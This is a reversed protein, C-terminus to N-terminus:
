NVIATPQSVVHRTDVSGSLICWIELFWKCGDAPPLRSSSDLRCPPYVIEQELVPSGRVVMRLGPSCPRTPTAYSAEAGQNSEYSCVYTPPLDPWRYNGEFRIRTQGSCLRTRSPFSFWTFSNWALVVPYRAGQGRAPAFLSLTITNLEIGLFVLKTSPGEVKEHAAPVSIYVLLQLTLDRHATALALSPGTIGLFDHLYNMVADLHCTDQLIWEISDAFSNFTFPASHLGFPLVRDYYFMGHWEIGLRPWDSPRVPCWRFANRIDVKALFSGPGKRMIVSIAMDITAYTPSFQDRSIGDNVSVGTPSSLNHILRLKGNHKPVVGLGSIHMVRFPPSSFLGASEGAACKSTLYDSVFASKKFASLHHPSHVMACPAASVPLGIDFVFVCAMLVTVLFHSIQIFRLFSALRDANM